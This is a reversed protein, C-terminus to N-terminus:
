QCEEPTVVTWTPVTPDQVYINLQALQCKTFKNDGNSTPGGVGDPFGLVHTWEHRFIRFLKGDLDEGSKEASAQINSLYIRIRNQACLKYSGVKEWM